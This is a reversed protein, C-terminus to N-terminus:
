DVVRTAITPGLSGPHQQVSYENVNHITDRVKVM